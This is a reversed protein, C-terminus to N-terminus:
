LLCHSELGKRKQEKVEWVHILLKAGSWEMSHQKAMPEFAIFWDIQVLVGLVILWFLLDKRKILQNSLFKNYHCFALV